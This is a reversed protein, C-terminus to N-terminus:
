YRKREETLYVRLDSLRAFLEVIVDGLYVVV